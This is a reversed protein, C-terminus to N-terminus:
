KSVSWECVKKFMCKNCSRESPYPIIINKCYSTIVNGLLVKSARVNTLPYLYTKFSNLDMIRLIFSEYKIDKKLESLGILYYASLYLLEVKELNTSACSDVLITAYIQKNVDISLCDILGSVISDEIKVYVPHDIYIISEESFLTSIYNITNALNVKQDITYIKSDPFSSWITNFYKYVTDKQVNNNLLKQSILYKIVKRHISSLPFIDEPSKFLKRQSCVVYDVLNSVNILM